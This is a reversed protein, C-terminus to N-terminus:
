NQCAGPPQWDVPSRDVWPKDSDHLVLVLARVTDSGYTGLQMLVGPPAIASEGSRSILHGNTTEICQAGDLVYFLEAGAHQHIRTRFGPVLMSRLYRATYARDAPVPIPGLVAIRAGSPPRWGQGAVTGLWFRDFAEFETSKGERAQVASRLSQFEYLHWYVSDRPLDGITVSDLLYCGVETIGPRTREQCRGPTQASAASTTAFLTVVGFSLSGLGVCLNM